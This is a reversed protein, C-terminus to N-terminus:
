LDIDFRASLLNKDSVLIQIIAKGRSCVLNLITTLFIISIIIDDFQFMKWTVPRQAPFEGTVPSNGACLGTVCLKATKKSRRRFLRNVLLRSAPSKLRWRAWHSTVTIFADLRQLGYEYVDGRTGVPGSKVMYIHHELRKYHKKTCSVKHYRPNNPFNREM